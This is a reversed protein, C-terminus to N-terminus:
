VGMFSGAPKGFVRIIKPLRRAMRLASPDAFEPEVIVIIMRLVDGLEGGEARLKIEREFDFKRDDNM